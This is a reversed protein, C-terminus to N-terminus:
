GNSECCECEGGVGLPNNSSVDVGAVVVPMRVVIDDTGGVGADADQGFNAILQVFFHLNTCLEAPHIVVGSGVGAIGVGVGGGGHGASGALGGDHNGGVETVIKGGPFVEGNKSLCIQSQAEVELTGVVSAGTAYGGVIAVAVGADGDGNHRTQVVGEVVVDRQVEIDVQEVAISLEHGGVKTAAVLVADAGVHVALAEEAVEGVEANAEVVSELDYNVVSCFLPGEM